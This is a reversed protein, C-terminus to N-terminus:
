LLTNDTSQFYAWSIDVKCRIFVYQRTTHLQSMTVSYLLRPM